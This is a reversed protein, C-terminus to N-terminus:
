WPGVLGGWSDRNLMDLPTIQHTAKKHSTGDHRLLLSLLISLTISVISGHRTQPHMQPRELPDSPRDACKEMSKM